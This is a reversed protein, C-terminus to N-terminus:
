TTQNEVKAKFTDFSEKTKFQKIEGIRAPTDSIVELSHPTHPLIVIIEGQNIIVENGNLSFKLKGTQLFTICLEDHSHMGVIIGPMFDFLAIATLYEDSFIISAPRDCTGIITNSIQSSTFDSLKLQSIMM